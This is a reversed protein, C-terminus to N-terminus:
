VLSNILLTIARFFQKYTEARNKEQEYHRLSARKYGWFINTISLLQKVRSM